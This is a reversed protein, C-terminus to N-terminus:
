NIWLALTRVFRLKLDNRVSPRKVFVKGMAESFRVSSYRMIFAIVISASRSIGAACHVLM